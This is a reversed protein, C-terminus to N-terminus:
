SLLEKLKALSQKEVQAIRQLSVKHRAALEQLTTPVEALWRSKVIDQSREDLKSLAQHLKITNREQQLLDVQVEPQCSEDAPLDISFDYFEDDKNTSLELNAFRAEMEIVDRETVSLKTAIQKVDINDIGGLEQHLSRLNFFLKRQAKTTAIRVLRWNRIIYEHITFKIWKLAYSVLRVCKDPDFRKVAQMLGINGEQILDAQPLGYGLYQRSVTVVVRLHSLILMHAASLDKYQRFKNVLEVEQELTLYPLKKIERLYSDLSGLGSLSPLTLESM